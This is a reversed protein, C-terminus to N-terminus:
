GGGNLNSLAVDRLMSGNRGEGYVAPFMSVIRQMEAEVEPPFPLDSPVEQREEVQREEQREEYTVRSRDSQTVGSRDSEGPIRLTFLNTLPTPSGRLRGRRTQRTLWGQGRLATVERKATSESVGLQNGLAAYSPWCENLENAYSAMAWLLAKQRPTLESDRVAWTFRLTYPENIDM